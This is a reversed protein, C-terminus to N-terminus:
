SPVDLGGSDTHGGGGLSRHWAAAARVTAPEMVNSGEHPGFCYSCSAPCDLTPVLMLHRIM